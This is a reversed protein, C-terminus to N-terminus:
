APLLVTTTSGASAVKDIGKKLANVLLPARKPTSREIEPAPLAQPTATTSPNPSVSMSAGIQPTKFAARLNDNVVKLRKAEDLAVRLTARISPNTVLGLAHEVNSKTSAVYRASGSFATTIERYHELEKKSTAQALKHVLADQPVDANTVMSFVVNSYNARLQEVHSLWVRLTHWLKRSSDQYPHGKSQVTNADQELTAQVTGDDRFLLEAVDDLTEIGVRLTVQHASFLRYLAREFQFTFAVITARANTDITEEIISKEDKKKM